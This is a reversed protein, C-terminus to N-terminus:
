EKITTRFKYQIDFESLEFLWRVLKGFLNPKCLVQKLPQNTPTVITYAQFYPRLKKCSVLLALALKELDIYRTKADLM